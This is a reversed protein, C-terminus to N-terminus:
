IEQKMGPWATILKIKEYNKNIGLHGGAPKM